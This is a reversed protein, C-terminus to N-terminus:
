TESDDRLDRVMARHKEVSGVGDGFAGVWKLFRNERGGPVLIAKHGEMVVEVIDGEKLGLEEGVERPLTLNGDEGVVVSYTM